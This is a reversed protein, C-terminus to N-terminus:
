IGAECLGRSQRPPEPILCGPGEQFQVGQSYLADRCQTTVVAGRACTGTPATRTGGVIETSGTTNRVSRVWDIEQGEQWTRRTPGRGGWSAGQQAPCWRWGHDAACCLSCWSGLEESKGSFHQTYLCTDVEDWRASWDGVRSQRFEQDYLVWSPWRFAKSCKTILYGYALLEQCRGPDVKLAVSLWLMHCQHWVKIDPIIRRSRALDEAKIVVVGGELQTPAKKSMGSAPPLLSFDVYQGWRIKDALKRPIAPMSLEWDCASEKAEGPGKNSPQTKSEGSVGAGAMLQMAQLTRRDAVQTAEEGARGFEPPGETGGTAMFVWCMLHVRAREGTKNTARTGLVRDRTAVKYEVRPQGRSRPGM